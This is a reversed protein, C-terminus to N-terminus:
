AIWGLSVFHWKTTTREDQGVTQIITQTTNSADPLLTTAEIGMKTGFAYTEGTKCTARFVATPLAPYVLVSDGDTTAAQAAVFKVAVTDTGGTKKIVKGSSIVLPDGVAVAGGAICKIMPLAADDLNKVYEWAM